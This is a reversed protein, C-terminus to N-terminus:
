GRGTERSWVDVGDAVTLCCDTQLRVDRRDLCLARDSFFLHFYYNKLTVM